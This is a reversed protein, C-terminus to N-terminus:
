AHEGFRDLLKRWAIRSSASSGMTEPDPTVTPAASRHSAAEAVVAPKTMIKSESTARYLRDLESIAALVEDYNAFRDAPTKAMLRVILQSLEPPISPEWEHPPVVPERVHKLMVEMRTRGSFPLQGTLAHYFTAGLSYLDSRLDYNRTPFTQEPALYAVSDVAKPNNLLDDGTTSQEANDLLGLALDVLKAAGNRSLLINSPKLDRHVISLQYAAALGDVIQGMLRIVRDPQIRGSQQILEALSLGEVFELVLYHFREQQDYDWVRVLHPHNLRALRRAESKFQRSVEPHRELLHPYFVKIAVPVNLTRHLGRFVTGYTGSGMHETLLCRGLMTGVEPLGPNLEPPTAENPPKPVDDPPAPADAPPLKSPALKASDDFAESKSDQLPSSQEPPVAQGPETTAPSPPPRLSEPTSPVATAAPVPPLEAIEAQAIERGHVTFLRLTPDFVKPHTAITALRPGASRMIVQNNMLFDVLSEDVRQVAWWALVGQMEEEPLQHILLQILIRDRADLERVPIGHLRPHSLFKLVPSIMDRVRPSFDSLM